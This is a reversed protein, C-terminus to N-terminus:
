RDVGAMLTIGKPGGEAVGGPSTAREAGEEKHMFAYFDKHQKEAM